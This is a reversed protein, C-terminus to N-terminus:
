PRLPWLGLGDALPREFGGTRDRIRGGLWLGSSGGGDLNLADTAGLERELFRALSELSMGSAGETSVVVLLGREGRRAIATRAVGDARVDPRFQEAEADLVTRGDQLLLPGAGILDDLEAVSGPTNEAQWAVSTAPALAALTSRGGRRAVTLFGDAPVPLAGGGEVLAALTGDRVVAVLEDAAPTYSSGWAPTLVALGDAFALGNFATLPVVREGLRLGFTPAFRAFRWEGTASWGVAGRPRLGSVAGALWVGLARRPGLSEATMRNFFGGNVAAWAGAEEALASLPTLTGGSPRLLGLRVQKPDFELWEIRRPRGEWVLRRRRYMLGETWNQTREVIGATRWDVVIRPPEGLTTVVAFGPIAPDARIALSEGEPTAQVGAPLAGAALHARVVVSPGSAPESRFCAPRDLEIVLREGDPRVGRRVALVRASPCPEAATGLLAQVATSRLRRRPGPIVEAEVRKGYWALPQRGVTPADLVQVGLRELDSEDVADPALPPVVPAAAAGLALTGVLAWAVPLAHGGRM